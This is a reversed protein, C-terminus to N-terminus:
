VASFMRELADHLDTFALMEKETFSENRNLRSEIFSTVREAYFAADSDSDKAARLVAMRQQMGSDFQIDGLGDDDTPELPEGDQVSLDDRFSSPTAHEKQYRKADCAVCRIAGLPARDDCDLCKRASAAVAEGNIRTGTQRVVNAAWTRKPAASLTLSEAPVRLMEGVATGAIGLATARAGIIRYDGQNIPLGHSMNLRVADEFLEAPNAYRKEACPLEYGEGYIDRFACVRHFGDVVRRSEECVIVPPMKCDARIANRLREVHHYNIKERPYVSHDLILDKIALLKMGYLALVRSPTWASWGHALHAAVM